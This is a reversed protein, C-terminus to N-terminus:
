IFNFERFVREFRDLTARAERRSLIFNSDHAIQNRIKHAEWADQLTLFDSPEIAKLREGLSEGPYNMAKVMEDLMIDAEMIAQKWDSLNDTDLVQSIKEWRENRLGKGSADTRVSNFFNRIEEQRLKTIKYILIAAAIALLLALALFLTRLQALRAFLALLFPIVELLFRYILNFFYELNLYNPEFTPMTLALNLYIIRAAARRSSNFVSRYGGSMKGRLSPSPLCVPSIPRCPSSIPWTCRSRITFENASLSLRRRHRRRSLPRWKILLKLWSGLSRRNLPSRASIIPRMTVPRCSMLASFLGGGRKAVSDSAGRKGTIM